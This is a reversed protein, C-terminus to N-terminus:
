LACLKGSELTKLKNPHTLFVDPLTSNELIFLAFGKLSSKGKNVNRYAKFLIPANSNLAGNSSCGRM